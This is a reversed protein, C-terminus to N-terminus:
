LTGIGTSRKGIVAWIWKAREDDCRLLYEYPDDRFSYWQDHTMDFGVDTLESRDISRLICLGNRFQRFTMGTTPADAPRMPPMGESPLEHASM